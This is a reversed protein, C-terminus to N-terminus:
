DYVLVEGRADTTVFLEDGVVAIGCVEQWPAKTDFAIGDALEPWPADGGDVTFRKVGAKPQGMGSMGVYLHDGHIVVASCGGARGLGPVSAGDRYFGLEKHTEDWVSCAIVTGDSRVASSFMGHQIVSTKGSESNGLWSVTCPLQTLTLAWPSRPRPERAIQAPTKLPLSYKDALYRETKTREDDSLARDYVLVEALDGSWAVENRNIVGMTPHDFVLAISESASGNARQPAGHAWTAIYQGAGDRRVVLSGLGPGAGTLYFPSGIGLHGASCHQICGGLHRLTTANCPATDILGGGNIGTGVVIFTMEQWQGSLPLELTHIRRNEGEGGPAFRVAPHGNIADHVLMPRRGAEATLPQKAGAANAWTAVDAHDDLKLDDARAWMVLGKTVPEGTVAALKARPKTPAYLAPATPDGKKAAALGHKTLLYRQTLEREADSLVGRYVVIESMEGNMGVDKLYSGFQTDGQMVGIAPAPDSAEHLMTGDGWMSYHMAGDDSLGAVLAALHPGPTTPLNAFAPGGVATGCVQSFSLLRLEGNNGPASGFWHGHHLGTGVVFVAIGRTESLTSPLRLGQIRKPDANHDNAFAVTPGGSEGKARFTPAGIGDITVLDNGRGSADKWREVPLGDELTLDAARAWLILEAQPKAAEGAYTLCDGAALLCFFWAARPATM